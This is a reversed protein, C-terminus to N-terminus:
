LAVVALSLLTDTSTSMKYYQKPTGDRRFLKDIWVPCSKYRHLLFMEEEASDSIFAPYESLILICM